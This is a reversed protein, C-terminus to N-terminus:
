GAFTRLSHERGSQMQSPPTIQQMSQRLLFEGNPLKVRWHKWLDARQGELRAADQARGTHRLLDSLATWTRSICTADRLDTEPNAGWALLKDLLDQYAAAAGATQGREAYEDARARLVHYTDSMPEVKDTPLKHADRLLNLAADIRKQAEQDQGVWRAAYSSAAFLEAEDHQRDASPKTERIRAITHDYVALAKQPQTHRLINGTELGIEALVRRSREDDPDKRALEEAIDMGRRLAVLADSTRGLSPEGDRRGLITGEMCLQDALNLRISAHGGAAQQDQLATAQHATQEAGELDGTQWRAIALAGLIGGELRHASPVPQIIEFARRSARLAKDFRRNNANSIAVNTEFYGMSYVDKPDVNNLSMFRDVRAVTTDAWALTEDRRGQADALCMRDHAITAAIFLGQRDRPDTALVPDVFNEAKQLTAQAEAFQGLNAATPDGQVHAVRVYALAIELALAKDGRVESGLSTLYQLSDAVIRSRVKTAGPLGRIDSDLEIFKNALQRVQLFRREAIKRERNAIYLGASLSTIVLVLASGALLVAAGNRRVFTAVRYTITDPRASIPEHKLYRHLDDALATVSAYREAPGKKLAKAVITDLDGRLLRHLKEPTTARHTANIRIAETAVGPSVVVDCVHPPDTEVIAKVLEAPSHPGPGAPHQGTLLEYLLVGCAYVDTATTVPRGTVQEPAAFLPTLAGGGERTLQTAPGSSGEEELLKAIGFDLLKVQGDRTVLVNSPKIDRHVILNAHAHAVAALVDLYLRLRAEVALRRRDSHEVIDEGEVYELILYPQGAPSVGADLLQAIHPHALRALIRGERKFREEGTGSLLPVRLLKVAAQREFRGDSRAALWVRGMGGDGILSLLTYAGITQGAPAPGAPIPLPTEELFREQSLIDHENLLSNLLSALAPNQGRLLVLWTEREERPMSLAQDLYPSVEQWQHSNLM